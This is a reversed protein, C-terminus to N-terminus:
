ADCLFTVKIALTIHVENDVCSCIKRGANKICVRPGETHRKRNAHFVRVEGSVIKLHTSPNQSDSQGFHFQINWDFADTIRQRIQKTSRQCPLSSPAPSFARDAVDTNVVGVM